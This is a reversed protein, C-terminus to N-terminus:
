GGAPTRPSATTTPAAASRVGRVRVRVGGKPRLSAISEREPEATDLLDFDVAQVLSALLVKIETLAFAFGLCRRPGAGFPVYSLPSPEVYGPADKDWREPRFALPDPWWEGSRQTVYPSYLAITGAPIRVGAADIDDLLKRGAAAGPPWLRLSESVVGDLYTLERLRSPTVDEEGVEARLKEWVGPNALSAWLTWGVAASTTEYGAAILSVVQDRV